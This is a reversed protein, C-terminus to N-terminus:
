GLAYPEEIFYIDNYVGEFDKLMKEKVEELTIGDFILYRSHYPFRIFNIIKTDGHPQSAECRRVYAIMNTPIINNWKPQNRRSKELRVMRKYEEPLLNM